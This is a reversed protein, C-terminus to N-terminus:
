QPELEVGLPWTVKKTSWHDPGASKIQDRKLEAVELSGVWVIARGEEHIMQALKFCKEFEYNFVKMFTQIVYDFTHDDDNLVVVAYPPQRRTRTEEEFDPLTRTPPEAVAPM